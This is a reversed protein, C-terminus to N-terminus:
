KLSILFLHLKQMEKKACIKCMWVLIVLKALYDVCLCTRWDEHRSFICIGIFKDNNQWSVDCVYCPM